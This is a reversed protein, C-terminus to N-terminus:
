KWVPSGRLTRFTDRLHFLELLTRLLLKSDWEGVKLHWCVLEPLPAVVM